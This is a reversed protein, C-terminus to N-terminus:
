FACCKLQRQSQDLGALLVALMERGQRIMELEGDAVEAVGRWRVSADRAANGLTWMRDRAKLASKRSVVAQQGAKKVAEQVKREGSQREQVIQEELMMVHGLRQEEVKLNGHIQAELESIQKALESADRLRAEKANSLQSELSQIREYSIRSQNELSALQLRLQMLMAGGEHQEELLPPMQDFRALNHIAPSPTVDPLLVQSISGYGTPSPLTPFSPSDPIEPLVSLAPSVAGSRFPAPIDSLMSGIDEQGLSKSHQALQEWSLISGRDNGPKRPHPRLFPSNDSSPPAPSVYSLNARSPLFGPRSPTHPDYSDNSDQSNTKRFRPIAPTPGTPSAFTSLMFEVDNADM